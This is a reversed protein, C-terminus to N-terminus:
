FGAGPFRGRAKQIPSNRIPRRGCEPRVMRWTLANDCSADALSGGDSGRNFEAAGIRWIAGKPVPNAGSRGRSAVVGRMKNM